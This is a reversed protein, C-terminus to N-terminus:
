FSLISTTAHTCNTVCVLAANSPFYLSFTSSIFHMSSEELLGLSEALNRNIEKKLTMVTVLPNKNLYLFDFVLIDYFLM